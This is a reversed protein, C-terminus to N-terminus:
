NKEGERATENIKVSLGKKKKRAKQKKRKGEKDNKRRGEM